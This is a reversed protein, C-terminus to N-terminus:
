FWEAETLREISIYRLKSRVEAWFLRTSPHAHCLRLYIYIYIYIYMYMCICMCIYIYIYYWFFPNDGTMYSGWILYTKDFKSFFDHWIRIFYHYINGNGHQICCLSAHSLVKLNFMIRPIGPRHRYLFPLDCNCDGSFFCCWMDSLYVFLIGEPLKVYSNFIAM